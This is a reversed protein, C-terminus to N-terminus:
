RRRHQRVGQRNRRRRGHFTHGWYYEYLKGYAKDMFYHYGRNKFHIKDRKYHIKPILGNLNIVRHGRHFKIYWNITRAFYVTLTDWMDRESISLYVIESDPFSKELRNLVRDIQGIIKTLESWYFKIPDFHIYRRIEKNPHESAFLQMDFLWSLCQGFLDSDNSGLSVLIYTPECSPDNLCASWQDGRDPQTPPVNINRVRDHINVFRSGGVACFSTEMLASIDLPRPGHKRSPQFKWKLLNSLHSDGYLLVHPPSAHIIRDKHRWLSMGPPAYYRMYWDNGPM